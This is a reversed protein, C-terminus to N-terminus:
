FVKLLLVGLIDERRGPIGVMDRPAGPTCERGLLSWWAEIWPKWPISSKKSSRFERASVDNEPFWRSAACCTRSRQSLSLRM